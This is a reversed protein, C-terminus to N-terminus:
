AVMRGSSQSNVVQGWRAPNATLGDAVADLVSSM